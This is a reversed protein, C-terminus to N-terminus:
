TIIAKKWIKNYKDKNAEIGKKVPDNINEKSSVTEESEVEYDEIDLVLGLEGVSDLLEGLKEIAEEKTEAVITADGGMLCIGFKYKKM